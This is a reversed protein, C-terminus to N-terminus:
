KENSAYHDGNVPIKFRILTGSFEESEVEIYGGMEKAIGLSISLGLGTGKGLTKTTYFPLFINTKIQDPIGIGNDIVEVNIFGSDLYSKVKMLKNFPQKAISAREEIADKANNFFNVVVQEFKYPNGLVEPISRDLDFEVKIQYDSFKTRALIFAKEISQNVDFLEQIQMQQGRSFKSIESIILKIRKIDEHIDIITQSIYHRNPEAEQNELQISETALSINQLPQKIEHAIGSALEGLSTLSSQHVIVQQQENAKKVADAIKIELQKNVKKKIRYRSYFIIVLTFVVLITLWFFVQRTKLTEIAVRQELIEKEKKEVEYVIQLNKIQMSKEISLLSDRIMSAAKYYELAKMYDGTSEHWTSLYTKAKQINEKSDILEALELAEKFHSYSETYMEMKLRADGMNLKSVVIGQKNDISYYLANSKDFYQLAKYFDGDVLSIVGLNTYIAAINSVDGMREKIPLAENFFQRSHEYNMMDMSIVGLNISTNAYSNTDNMRKYIERSRIYYELAKDNEKLNNYINGINLYSIAIGRTNETAENTKLQNLHNQLALDYYGLRNYVVGVNNYSAALEDTNNIEINIRLAMKFYELANALDSQRYYAKAIEKAAAAILKKNQLKEAIILAEKGYELSQSASTPMQHRALELLAEIRPEGAFQNSSLLRELSDVSASYTALSSTFFTIILIVFKM